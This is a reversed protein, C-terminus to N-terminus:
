PVSRPTSGSGETDDTVKKICLHLSRLPKRLHERLVDRSCLRWTRDLFRKVGHIGSMSWPKVMELPGMFMEYLRMSDAGFEAIVDDPNVVNGLIKVNEGRRGGPYSGPQCDGSPNPPVSRALTLCSRTGFMCCICFQTSLEELMSTSPMLIKKKRDLVSPITPDIYRLYYWCSGAWQPM